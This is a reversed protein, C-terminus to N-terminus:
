SEYKFLHRWNISFLMWMFDLCTQLSPTHLLKHRLKAAQQSCQCVNPPRPIVCCSSKKGLCAGSAASVCVPSLCCKFRMFPLFNNRFSCSVSSQLPSSSRTLAEDKINVGFLLFLLNSKGFQSLFTVVHKSYYVCFIDYLWLAIFILKRQSTKIVSRRILLVDVSSCIM